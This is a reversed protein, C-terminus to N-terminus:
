NTEKLRRRAAKMQEPTLKGELRRAQAGAMRNGAEAARTLWVWAEVYDPQTSVGDSLLDGLKMQAPLVGKAAAKRYHDLSANLKNQQERVM